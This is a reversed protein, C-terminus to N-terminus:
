EKSLEKSKNRDYLAREIAQIAANIIEVNM